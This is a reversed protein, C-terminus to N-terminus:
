ALEASARGFAQNFPIGETRSIEGARNRIAAAKKEAEAHNVDGGGTAPNKATERNHIREEVKAAGAPPLTAEMLKETEARNAILQTRWAAKAGEPVRKDFRNLVEDAEMEKKKTEAEAAASQLKTIAALIAAEDADAPLGLKEAIPQMTNKNEHQKQGGPDSRNSIAKGGRNNPRNTFALGSLRLPRVRGNGLDELGDAPYETSFWKVRKNKVASEGLDTLDLLGHLQNTRSEVDQLWAYAETSHEPDHSLHDLDVLMGAWDDGAAAKEARFTNVISELAKQDIVQMRDGNAPHEGTVEIQYWGDTAPKDGKRNLIRANM